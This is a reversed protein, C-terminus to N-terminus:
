RPKVPQFFGSDLDSGAGPLLYLPSPAPSSSSSTKTYLLTTTETVMDTTERVSQCITELEKVVKSMSPRTEPRDECCWLALEALKKVKDPSIEGMRSDAVSQVTGCEYAMRVQVLM